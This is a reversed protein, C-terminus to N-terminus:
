REVELGGLVGDLLAVFRTRVQAAVTTVEAHDLAAGGLGAAMNTVCSIGLVRMGMHRAAIVEPVTSMGVVDAGMVGLMHIEAPTEYSPGLVGAYVGQQLPFGLDSAVRLALEALTPDYAETMDPFRPGLQDENPGVLPNAGSLNIHDRIVMLDAVAFGRNVGGAANTVILTKAGLARMTRLPLVVQAIGVGEYAHVRGQMAIINQGHKTGLVLQGKHGVVSSRPFHPIEAYPIREVDELGDAYSGLGSGLILAVEPVRDCRRRIVDAAQKAASLTSDM